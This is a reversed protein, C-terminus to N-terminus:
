IVHVTGSSVTGSVDVCAVIYAVGYLGCYLVTCSM